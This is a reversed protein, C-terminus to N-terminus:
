TKSHSCHHFLEYVPRDGSIGTINNVKEKLYNRKFRMHIADATHKDPISGLDSPEIPKKYGLKFLWDLWWYTLSSPLPAYDHLFNMDEKKTDDPQPCNFHDRRGGCMQFFPTFLREDTLPKYVHLM